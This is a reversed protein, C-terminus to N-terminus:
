RSTSVRRASPSDIDRRLNRFHRAIESGLYDRRNARVERHEQRHRRGVAATRSRIAPAANAARAKGPGPKTTGPKIAANPKYPLVSRRTERICREVIPRDPSVDRDLFERFWPSTVAEGVFFLHDETDQLSSRMEARM